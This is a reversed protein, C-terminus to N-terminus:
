YKDAKELDDSFLSLLRILEHGVAWKHLIVKGNKIKVQLWINIPANPNSTSSTFMFTNKNVKHGFKEEMKQRSGCFHITINCIHIQTYYNPNENKIQSWWIDAIQYVHKTKPKSM